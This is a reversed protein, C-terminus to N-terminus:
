MFRDLLTNFCDSSMIISIHVNDSEDEDEDDDFHSCAHCEENEEEEHIEAIARDIEDLFEEFTLEKEEGETEEENKNAKANALKSQLEYGLLNWIKDEIKELCIKKGIEEDYNSPDVCTTSERITFGNKMRVTVYTVPKGFEIETKVIVDQMNAQVDEKSVKNKM